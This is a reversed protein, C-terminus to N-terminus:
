LSSTMEPFYKFEHFILTFLVFLTKTNKHIYNQGGLGGPLTESVRLTGPGYKSFLKGPAFRTCTCWSVRVFISMVPSDAIAFFVIFGLHGDVTWLIFLVNEYLPIGHLWSLSHAIHSDLVIQIFRLFLITLLFLLDWFVILM